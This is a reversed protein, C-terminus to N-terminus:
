AAHREQRKKYAIIKSTLWRRTEQSPQVPNDKLGRPWVGVRERYKHSVWGSKYNKEYAVHLLESYFQQKEDLGWLRAEKKRTEKNIRELDARFEEIEKAHQKGLDAYCNTCQKSPKQVHNCHPCKMSAPETKEKAAKVDQIKQTGDLTWPQDDDVFGLENIVNAHDILIANEKGPFARLVRGVMQLFRAISKTPRAIIACSVAPSNWGYSLVDVSCLVKSEGSEIRQLVRRREDNDTEGDIYDAEIGDDLFRQQIALAHTRKVAFVVTQRDPAIRKWNDVIDGILVPENMKEDLQKQNYDGMSIKIGSLDIKQPTSFYECPVLYEMEVLDSMSPGIIMDDYLEGLGRGDSRAPTATFGIIMAGPNEDLVARIKKGFVAHAEDIIILGFRKSIRDLRSHLTDLSAVTVAPSFSYPEGAMMVGHRVEMRDLDESVQYVLQRRPAIFLTETGKMTAAEIISCLIASKGGGTPLVYLPRKNGKAISQRIDTLAQNQYDRLKLM